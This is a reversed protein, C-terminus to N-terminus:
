RILIELYYDYCKIHKVTINSKSTVYTCSKSLNLLIQSLCFLYIMNKTYLRTM